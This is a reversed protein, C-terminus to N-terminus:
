RVAGWNTAICYELTKEFYDSLPPVHIDTGALASRTNTDDFDHENVLYPLYFDMKNMVEQWSPPASPRFARYTELPIFQIPEFKKTSVRNFYTTAREALEGISISRKLGSVLHYTKGIHESSLLIHCITDAVYDVPVVDLKTNPDGPVMTLLRKYYLKLPYYIVNFATTKGTKSDGIIISPRFITLPLESQFVSLNKESEFKAQEYTNAFSQGCDLEDELITGTRTGCVYATSISGIHRLKSKSAQQALELINKTGLCNISRAEELPLNFKVTAAAHLIETIESALERFASESLGLQPLTVDGRRARIQHQVQRFDTNPVWEQWIARLRAQAEEDSAARILLTIKAHPDAMMLRPLLHGGVLGTGGTLFIHRSM